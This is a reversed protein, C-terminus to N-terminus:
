AGEFSGGFPRQLVQLSYLSLLREPDGLKLLSFWQVTARSLPRVARAGRARAAPSAALVGLQRQGLQPGQCRSSARSGAEGATASRPRWESRRQGTPEAPDELVQGRAAPTSAVGQQNVIFALLYWSQLEPGAGAHAGGGATGRGRRLLESAVGRTQHLAAALPEGGSVLAARPSLRAERNSRATSIASPVSAIPAVNAAVADWLPSADTVAAPRAESTVAAAVADWMPHATSASAIPEQAAAGARRQALEQHRDWHQIAPVVPAQAGGYGPRPALQRASAPQVWPEGADSRNDREQVEVGFGAEQLLANWGKTGSAPRLVKGTSYNLSETTKVMFVLSGGPRLIRWVDAFINALATDNFYHLSFRAYVMDFNGDPYPITAPLTHAVVQIKLKELQRRFLPLSTPPLKGNADQDLLSRRSPRGDESRDLAVIESLPKLERLRMAEQGAGFGIELVSRKEKDPLKSAIRDVFICDPTNRCLKDSLETGFAPKSSTGKYLMVATPRLVRRALSMAPFPATSLGSSFDSRPTSQPGGHLVGFGPAIPSTQQRFKAPPPSSGGPRLAPMLPEPLGPDVPRDYGSQRGTNQASRIPSSQLSPASPVPAGYASQQVPPVDVATRPSFRASMPAAVVRPRGCMHCFHADPRFHAGCECVQPLEQVEPGPTAVPGSPGRGPCLTSYQRHLKDLAQMQPVLYDSRDIGLQKEETYAILKSRNAECVAKAAELVQLMRPALGAAADALKSKAADGATLEKHLVLLRLVSEEVAAVPAAALGLGAGAADQLVAALVANARRAPGGQRIM